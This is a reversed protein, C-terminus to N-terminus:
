LRYIYILINAHCNTGCTSRYIHWAYKLIDSPIQVGLINHLKYTSYMMGFRPM